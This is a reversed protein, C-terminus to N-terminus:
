PLNARQSYDLCSFVYFRDICPSEKGSASSVRADPLLVFDSRRADSFAVHAVAWRSSHHKPARAMWRDLYARTAGVRNGGSGFSPGHKGDVPSAPYLAPACRLETAVIFPVNGKDALIRRQLKPEAERVDGSRADEVGRM